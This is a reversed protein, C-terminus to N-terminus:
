RLFAETETLVSQARSLYFGLGLLHNPAFQTQPSANSVILPQIDLAKQLAIQADTILTKFTEDKFADPFDTKMDRLLLAIVYARGKVFYFLNDAQWDFFKKENKVIHNEIREGERKLSDRLSLIVVPLEDASLESSRGSKKYAGLAEVAGKYKAASSKAPKGDKFYWVDPPYSLLEAARALEESDPKLASLTKTFDKIESFIGTQFAPMNDLVAGPYFFPLNPTYVNRILERNGLAELTSVAKPVGASDNLRMSMDIRHTMLAGAPYYFVVFVATGALLWGWWKVAFDLLQQKAPPTFGPSSKLFLKIKGLFLGVAKRTKQLFPM